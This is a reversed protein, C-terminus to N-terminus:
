FETKWKDWDAPTAKLMSKIQNLSSKIELIERQKSKRLSKKVKNFELAVIYEWQCLFLFSHFYFHKLQCFLGWIEDM